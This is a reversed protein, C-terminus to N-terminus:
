ALRPPRDLDPRSGNRHDPGARLADPGAMEGAEDRGSLTVADAPPPAVTAVGWSRGASNPPALNVPAGGIGIENGDPDRYVAKRVGNDYTEQTDPPLGRRAAAGIFADLDDLFLTVMAHGAHGPRLEVYVHRHRAVTWVRETDNPEFSEVDGLLRDFWRVARPLDSVAVGAFLECDM